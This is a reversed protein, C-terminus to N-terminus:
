RWPTQPRLLPNACCKPANKASRGAPRSHWSLTISPGTTRTTSTKGHRECTRQTCRCTGQTVNRLQLEEVLDAEGRDHCLTQDGHSPLGSLNGQQRVCPPRQGQETPRALEAPATTSSVASNPTDVAEHPMVSAQPQQYPGTCLYM